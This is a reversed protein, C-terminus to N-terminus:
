IMKELAQIVRDRLMDIINQGDLTQVEDISYMDDYLRHYVILLKVEEWKVHKVFQSTKMNWTSFDKTWAISHAM